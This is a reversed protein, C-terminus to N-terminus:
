LTPQPAVVQPAPEPEEAATPRGAQQLETLTQWYARLAAKGQETIQYGTASIRGKFYKRITIYGAEALNATQRSLNGKTLGSAASLFRFDVEEAGNLIALIVLRAPEHVMRDIELVAAISPSSAPSATGALKSRAM